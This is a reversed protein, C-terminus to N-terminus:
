KHFKAISELTEVAEDLANPKNYLELLVAVCHLRLASAKLSSVTGAISSPHNTDGTLPYQGTPVPLIRYQHNFTM